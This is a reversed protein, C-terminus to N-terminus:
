FEYVKIEWRHQLRNIMPVLYAPENGARAEAEPRPSINWSYIAKLALRVHLKRMLTSKGLIQVANGPGWFHIEPSIRMIM